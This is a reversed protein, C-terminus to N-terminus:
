LVSGKRDVLFVVALFFRMPGSLNKQPSFLKLKIAEKRERKRKEDLKM